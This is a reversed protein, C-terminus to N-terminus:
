ACRARAARSLMRLKEALKDVQDRLVKVEEVLARQEAMGVRLVRTKKSRWLLRKLPKHM